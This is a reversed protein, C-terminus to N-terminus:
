KKVLFGGDVTLETGTVFSARGSLLFMVAEAVEDPRAIRGAVHAEAARARIQAADPRGDLAADTFGTDVWGPSVANIRIGRQALEMALSRTLGLVAGKSTHYAAYGDSGIHASVSSTTVVAAGEGLHPLAHKIALMTGRVNVAMVRDWDEPALDEVRGHANTGAVCVLGALPGLGDFGARVSAEDAVDVVRCIDAPGNPDLDLSATGYGARAAARIVAAGIDGAGGTVAIIGQGAM